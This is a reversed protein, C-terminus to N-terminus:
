ETLQSDNYGQDHLWTVLNDRVATYASNTFPAQDFTVAQRDFLVGMVAALGGGLSHGTFSITAGPNAAKVQLYYLAAQDLQSSGFGSALTVDAWLDGLSTPDTGAYSIVIENGRQFSIAEFGGSTQFSLTTPDPVPFFPSWGQPAPIWNIEDRTTRYAHGAMLAYEINTVM